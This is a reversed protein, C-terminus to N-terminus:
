ENQRVILLPPFGHFVLTTSFFFVSFFFVTLPLVVPPGATPRRRSCAPVGFRRSRETCAFTRAHSRAAAPSFCFLPTAFHAFLLVVFFRERPTKPTRAREIERAFPPCGFAVRSRRWRREAIWRGGGGCYPRVCHQLTYPRQLLTCTSRRRATCVKGGRAINNNNEPPAADGRGGRVRGGARRGSPREIQRCPPPTFVGGGGGCVCLRVCVRASSVAAPLSLAGTCACVFAGRRRHTSSPGRPRGIRTRAGRGRRPRYARVPPRPGPFLTAFVPFIIYFFIM